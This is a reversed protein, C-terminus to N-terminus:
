EQGGDADAGGQGANAQLQRVYNVIHWRDFHSVQHGYSPMLGRGSRILAYIYGDPYAAAQAGAVNYATLVPHVEIIYANAGVGDTGHCPACMREFLVQGRALSQDTPPVPNQLNMIVPDRQGVMAPTFPPPESDLPEPQGVNVDFPATPFNGSAFSVAGDAPPLPHEYPDLSRQDRMSRGFVAVLADDLPTCASSVAVAALVLGRVGNRILRTSDVM